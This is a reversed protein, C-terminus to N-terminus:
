KGGVVVEKGQKRIGCSLRIVLETPLTIRHVETTPGSLIDLLVEVAKAGLREVPQRVTTLPPEVVAAIPMDDFAVLAVDQPVRLGAERLVKLAGVAMMDNAIFIADPASSILQCAATMGSEETFDGYAILTKDIPLNHASLAQRYGALRDQGAVMDQPGAITAIRRRGLGILHEVAIRAGGTNDVDVWHVRKDEHRGVSVFPIRERLLDPILPDDVTTSAVIAGDLYGSRLLRHYIERKNPLPPVLSLLMHYLHANCRETIGRLLLSFFPDTFLRTVTEPIIVGIIQTRNTALSRAVVNPQYGSERIVHWVRERTKSHVNPHDNIVRSVTSRSVGALRAVEELTLRM